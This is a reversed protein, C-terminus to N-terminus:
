ELITIHEVVNVMDNLMMSLSRVDNLENDQLAISVIDDNNRYISNIHYNACQINEVISM